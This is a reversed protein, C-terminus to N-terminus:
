RLEAQQTHVFDRFRNLNEAIREALISKKKEEMEEEMQLTLIVRTKEAGLRMFKTLGSIQGEPAVRWALHSEPDEEVIEVDWQTNEGWGETKWHFNTGDRRVRQVGRLYKPFNACDMLLAYVLKAPAMIDVSCKLTEAPPKVSNGIADGSPEVHM